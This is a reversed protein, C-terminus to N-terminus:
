AAARLNRYRSPSVGTWRRFARIFHSVDTYGLDFAIETVPADSDRLLVTAREARVEDVLQRYSLSERQLLRQLTRPHVGVIEAM